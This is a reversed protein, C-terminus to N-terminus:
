WWFCQKMPCLWEICIGICGNPELKLGCKMCQWGKKGTLPKAEPFDIPIYDADLDVQM